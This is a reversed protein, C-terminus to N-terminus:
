VCVPGSGMPIAGSIDDVEVPLVGVDRIGVAVDQLGDEMLTGLSLGPEIRRHVHRRIRSLGDTDLEQHM